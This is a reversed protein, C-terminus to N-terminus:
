PATPTSRKGWSIWGYIAMLWYIFLLAAYYWAGQCSYIYVYLANALIWYLWNTRNEYVLLVTAILSLITTWVDLFPMNAVTNNSMWEGILYTSILSFVLLGIHQSSSIKTGTVGKNSGWKILGWIGFLVYIIQLVADAYLFYKTLDEYAIIACSIIGFYWCSRKKQAALYVYILGTILAVAGLMGLQQFFGIV